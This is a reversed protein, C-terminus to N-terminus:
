MQNVWYKEDQKKKDPKVITKSQLETAPVGKLLAPKATHTYM